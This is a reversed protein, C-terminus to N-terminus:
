VDMYLRIEGNGLLERVKKERTSSFKGYANASQEYYSRAIVEDGLMRYINGLFMSFQGITDDRAERRNWLIRACANTLELAEQYNGLCMAVQGLLGRCYACLYEKQNEAAVGIAENLLKRSEDLKNNLLLAYSYHYKSWGIDSAVDKPNFTEILDVSRKGFEEAEEFRNLRRACDSSRQLLWNAALGIEPTYEKTPIGSLLRQGEQVCDWCDGLREACVYSHALRAYGIIRNQINCERELMNRYIKISEKYKGLMNSLLGMSMQANCLLQSGFPLRDCFSVFYGSLELKRSFTMEYARSAVDSAAIILNRCLQPRNKIKPLLLNMILPHLHITDLHRDYIVLSRAILGMIVKRNCVDIWKYFEEITIGSEPILALNLMVYQEEQSLNNLNFIKKLKNSIEEISQNGVEETATFHLMDYMKRPYIGEYRMTSAVMCIGQTHGGLLRIIEQVDKEEAKGLYKTYKEKFLELQKAEDAFHEVKIWPLNNAVPEYQTTLLVAYEGSLFDLLDPDGTTNFGDIIILVNKNAIAKLIRMKRQYYQRDTDQPHNERSCGWIPFTYDNVVTQLLTQSFDVWLITSFRSSGQEAVVKALESKGVGGMGVLAIKNNNQSLQNYVAVLEDAYGNIRTTVLDPRPYYTHLRYGESEINKPPDAQDNGGPIEWSDRILYNLPGGIAYMILIFAMFACTKNASVVCPVYKDLSFQKVNHRLLSELDAIRTSEIRSTVDILNNLLVDPSNAIGRGLKGKFNGTTKDFIRDKKLEGTLEIIVDQKKSGEYKFQGAFLLSLLETQTSLYEKLLNYVDLATINEM